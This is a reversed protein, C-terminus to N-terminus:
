FILGKTKFNPRTSFVAQNSIQEIKVKKLFFTQSYNKWWM